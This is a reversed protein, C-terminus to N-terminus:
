PAASLVSRITAEISPQLRAVGAPTLHAGDRYLWGGQFESCTTGPCITPTPDLIVMGTSAALDHWAETLLRTDDRIARTTRVQPAPRPRLLTASTIQSDPFAPVDTVLVVTTGLPELAEVVARLGAVYLDAAQEDTLARTGDTSVLAGPRAYFEAVVHIMVVDPAAAELWALADEAWRRCDDRSTKQVGILFPCAPRTWVGFTAGVSTAVMRVTPTLVSAVSDGVLYVSTDGPGPYVCGTTRLISDCGDIARISRGQADTAAKLSAVGWGRDAGMTVGAAVTVPLAACVLTLAVARLGVLSRDYRFRDEVLRRSLVAVPLSLAAAAVVPLRQDPWTFAAMVILPWHWLYWGYSEDGLRVLSPRAMARQWQQSMSGAVLLLGAGAVPALAWSGPFATDADLGLTAAVVAGLGVVGLVGGLARRQPLRHAVLALGAGVGFEWLRTFPLYFAFRQPLPAPVVGPRYALLISLVLSAASIAAIGAVLVTRTRGLRRGLHWLAFVVLPLLLYTQEEVALTWTHLFPNEVDPRFYPVGYRYLYVNASFLSAAGATKAAEQQAGTPSLLVVSLAMTALSVAALSPVLRRVRRAYFEGFRLRGSHDLEPVILGTIVFGSVVFFVDVGVYGGSFGLGAHFLVVVLVAVGRLAQIDARYTARKPRSSM